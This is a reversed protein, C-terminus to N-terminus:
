LIYRRLDDDEIIGGLRERVVTADIVIKSVKGSEDVSPDLPM